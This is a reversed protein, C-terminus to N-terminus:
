DGYHDINIKNLKEIKKAPMKCLSIPPVPSLTVSSPVISINYSKLGGPLKRMAFVLICNTCNIALM